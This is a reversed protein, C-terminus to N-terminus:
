WDLEDIDPDDEDWPHGGVSMLESIKAAAADRISKYDSVVPAFVAAGQESEIAVMEGANLKKLMETTSPSNSSWDWETTCFRALDELQGGLEDSVEVNGADLAEIYDTLLKVKTKGYYEEEYPGGAGGGAISTMILLQTM